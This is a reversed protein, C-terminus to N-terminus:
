KEINNENYINKDNKNDNNDNLEINGDIKNKENLEITNNYGINGNESTDGNFCVKELISMERENGNIDSVKITESSFFSICESFTIRQNDFPDIKELFLFIKNELEDEKFIKMKQILETFEEENVIGDKNTDVSKFIEVFNKLQRDRFRIHNDLVIKLFDSFLINKEDNFLIMNYKEMRSLKNNNINNITNMYSLNYNRPSLTNNNSNITNFYNGNNTYNTNMLNNNNRSYNINNIRSEKYKQFMEIKKKENGKNIFNDIKKEIENAENKEYISYIIGKWEEEYLETKKKREFIKKIEKVSKLPNQRKIYYLLLEEISDLVKEIIFRADEEQENRLIKGFLLVLSDKKSYYKIGNIINRAWDIILNKLGYKKNLFTYMHEELTERPLKLELCKMDYNAKSIYLEKIFDKLTKLSILQHRNPNINSMTNIDDNTNLNNLINNDFLNANDYTKLPSKTKNFNINNNRTYRFNESNQNDLLKKPSQSHNKLNISKEENNNISQPENIINNVKDLLKETMIKNEKELSSIKKEYTNKDNDISKLLDNKQSELAAIKNDKEKIKNEKEKIKNDKEKIKNDKEKILDNLNNDNENKNNKNSDNLNSNKNNNNYSEIHSHITSILDKSDKITNYLENNLRILINNKNIEPCKNLIYPFIEDFIKKLIKMKKKILLYFYYYNSINVKKDEAKKLKNLYLNSIKNEENKENDNIISSYERLINVFDSNPNYKNDKLLKLEDNTIDILFKSNSKNENSNPSTNMSKVENLSERNENINNANNTNQDNNNQIPLSNRNSNDPIEKNNLLMNPQNQGEKSIEINKQVYEKGDILNINKTITIKETITKVTQTEIQKNNNNNENIKDKNNNEYSNNQKSNNNNENSIYNSNNEMNKDEKIEEMQPYLHNNRNQNGSEENEENNEEEEEEEEEDDKTSRGNLVQVNPLSNLVLM